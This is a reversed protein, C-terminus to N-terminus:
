CEGKKNNRSSKRNFLVVLIIILLVNISMILLEGSSVLVIPIFGLVTAVIENTVKCFLVYILYIMLFVSIVLVFSKIMSDIPSYIQEIIQNSLVIFDYKELPPNYSLTHIVRGWDNNFSIHSNM